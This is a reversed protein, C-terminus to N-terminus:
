VGIQKEELGNQLWYSERPLLLEHGRRGQGLRLPGARSIMKDLYRRATISSIGVREAAENLADYVTLGESRGIALKLVMRRFLPEKERNIILELSAHKVDPLSRDGSCKRAEVDNRECEGSREKGIESMVSNPATKEREHGTVIADVRRHYENVNCRHCLLRLNEPSDDRPDGNIHDIELRVGRGDARCIMCSSGDRERLYLVQWLRVSSHLRASKKPLRSTIATTGIL